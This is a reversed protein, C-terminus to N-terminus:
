CATAGSLTQRLESDVFAEPRAVKQLPLAPSPIEFPLPVVTTGSKQEAVLCREGGCEILHVVLHDSLRLKAVARLPGTERARPKQYRRLGMLSASLMGLVLVVAAIERGMDM